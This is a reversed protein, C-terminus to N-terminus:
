TFRTYTYAIVIRRQAPRKEDSDKIKKRQYNRKWKGQENMEWREVEVELICKECWARQQVLGLM